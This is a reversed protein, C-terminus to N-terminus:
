VLEDGHVKYLDNENIKLLGLGDILICLAGTLDVYVMSPHGIALGDRTNDARTLNDLIHDAERDAGFETKRKM